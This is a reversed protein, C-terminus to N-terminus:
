RTLHSFHQFCFHFVFFPFQGNRHGVEQEMKGNGAQSRGENPFLQKVCSGSGAKRGYGSFLRPFRKFVEDFLQFMAFSGDQQFNLCFVTRAYPYFQSLGNGAPVAYGNCFIWSRDNHNNLLFRTAPKRKQKGSNRGSSEGHGKLYRSFWSVARSLLIRFISRPVNSGGMEHFPHREPGSRNLFFSEPLDNFFDFFEM